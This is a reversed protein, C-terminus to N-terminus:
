GSFAGIQALFCRLDGPFFVVAACLWERQEQHRHWPPSALPELHHVAAPSRPRRGSCCRGLAMPLGWRAGVRKRQQRPSGPLSCGDSAQPSPPPLLTALARPRLRQLWRVRRGIDEAVVRSIHLEDSRLHFQLVLLLIVARVVRRHRLLIATCRQRFPVAPDTVIVGLFVVVVLFGASASPLLLRSRRRWLAENLRRRTALEVVAGVISIRRSNLRCHRSDLWGSGSRRDCLFNHRLSHNGPVLFRERLLPRPRRTRHYRRFLGDHQHHLLSLAGGEDPRRHHAYQSSSHINESVRQPRSPTADIYVARQPKGQRCGRRQRRKLPMGVCNSFLIVIVIDIVVVVVISSHQVLIWAKWFGGPLSDQLDGVLVLGACHHQESRDLALQPLTLTECACRQIAIVITREDLLM